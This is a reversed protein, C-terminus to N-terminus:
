RHPFLPMLHSAWTSVLQETISLTQFCSGVKFLSSITLLKCLWQPLDSHLGLAVDEALVRTRESKDVYGQLISYGRSTRVEKEVLYPHIAGVKPYTCLSM